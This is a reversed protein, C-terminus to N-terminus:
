TPSTLIKYDDVSGAGEDGDDDDRQRSICYLQKRKKRSGFTRRRISFGIFAVALVTEPTSKNNSPQQKTAVM